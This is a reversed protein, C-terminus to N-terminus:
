AIGGGSVVFNCSYADTATQAIGDIGVIGIYFTAKVASTVTATYSGASGSVVFTGPNDLSFANSALTNAAHTQTGENAWGNSSRAPAGSKKFKVGLEKGLLAAATDGYYTGIAATPKSSAKDYVTTDSVTVVFDNGAAENWAALIEDADSIAGAYTITFKVEAVARTSDITNSDNANYKQTGATNEYYCNGDADSLVVSQATIATELVPTVTFAGLSSTTTGSKLTGTAATGASISAASATQFWAFTRYFSNSFNVRVRADHTRSFFTQACWIFIHIIFIGILSKSNEIDLGPRLCIIRGLAYARCAM